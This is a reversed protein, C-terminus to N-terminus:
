PTAPELELQFEHEHGQLWVGAVTDLSRVDIRDDQEYVTMIRVISDAQPGRKEYNASLEHVRNKGVGQGEHRATMPDLADGSLVMTLNPHQSAVDTWIAQGVPTRSDDDALYEHTLLISRHAPHDALQKGAWDRAEASPASGLSMVLWPSGGVEIASVHDDLKQPERSQKFSHQNAYGSLHFAENFEWTEGAANLDREGTTIVYPLDGHLRALSTSAIDFQHSSAAPTLDGLQLVLQINLSERQDLVTDIMGELLQPRDLTAYHTSPLVAISWPGAPTSELEDDIESPLEAV